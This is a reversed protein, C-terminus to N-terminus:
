APSPGARLARWSSAVRCRITRRDMGSAGRPRLSLRLVSGPRSGPQFPPPMLNPLRANRHLARADSASPAAAQLSTELLEVAAPPPVTGSLEPVVTLKEILGHSPEAALTATASYRSFFWSPYETPSLSM